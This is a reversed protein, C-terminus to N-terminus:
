LEALEFADQMWHGHGHAELSPGVQEPWWHGRQFTYGYAFGVPEGGRCALLVRAGTYDQVCRSYTAGFQEVVAAPYAFGAAYLQKIQPTYTVAEDRTLEIIVGRVRLSATSRAWQPLVRSSLVY